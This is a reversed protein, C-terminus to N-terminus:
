VLWLGSKSSRSSKSTDATRATDISRPSVTIPLTSSGLRRITLSLSEVSPSSMRLLWIVGSCGGLPREGSGPAYTHKRFSQRDSAYDLALTFSGRERFDQVSDRMLGVNPSQM